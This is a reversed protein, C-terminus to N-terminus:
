CICAHIYTCSSVCICPFTFVKLVRPEDERDDFRESTQPHNEPVYMHQRFPVGSRDWRCIEHSFDLQALISPMMGAEDELQGLVFYHVCFYDDGERIESTHKVSDSSYIHIYLYMRTIYFNKLHSYLSPLPSLIMVAQVSARLEWGLLILPM